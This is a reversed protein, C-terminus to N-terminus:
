GCRRWWIWWVTMSMALMLIVGDDDNDEDDAIGDEVEDAGDCDGDANGCDYNKGLM